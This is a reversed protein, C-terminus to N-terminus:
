ENKFSYQRRYDFPMMSGVWNKLLWDEFEHDGCVVERCAQKWDFKNKPNMPVGVSPAYGEVTSSKLRGAAAEKRGKSVRM